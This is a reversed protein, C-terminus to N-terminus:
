SIISSKTTSIHSTCELCSADYWPVWKGDFCIIQVLDVAHCIYHLSPWHHWGKLNHEPCTYGFVSVMGSWQTVSTFASNPAGITCFVPTTGSVFNTVICLSSVLSSMIFILLSCFSFAFSSRFLFLSSFLRLLGGFFSLTDIVFPVDFNFPFPLALMLTMELWTSKHITHQLPSSVDSPNHTIIAM